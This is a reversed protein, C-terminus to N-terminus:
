NRFAFPATGIGQDDTYSCNKLYFDDETVEEGVEFDDPNAMFRDDEDEVNVLDIVESYNVIEQSGMPSEPDILDPAVVKYKKM